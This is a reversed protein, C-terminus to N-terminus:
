IPVPVNSVRDWHFHNGITTSGKKIFFDGRISKKQDIGGSPTKERLIHNWDKDNNLRDLKLDSYFWERM